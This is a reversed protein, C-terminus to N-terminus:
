GRNDRAAPEPMQAVGLSRTRWGKGLRIPLTLARCGLLLRRGPDFPDEAIAEGAGAGAHPRQKWPRAEALPEAVREGLAGPLQGRDCRRDALGQAGLAM